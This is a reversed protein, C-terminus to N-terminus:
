RRDRHRPLLCQNVILYIPVKSEPSEGASLPAIGTTNGKTRARSDGNDNREM